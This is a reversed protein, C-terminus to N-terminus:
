NVNQNSLECLFNKGIDDDLVSTIKDNYNKKKRYLKQTTGYLAYYLFWLNVSFLLM